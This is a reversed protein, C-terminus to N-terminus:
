CTAAGGPNTLSRDIRGTRLFTARRAPDSLGFQRGVWVLLALGVVELGLNLALGREVAPLDGVFDVGDLPWWFTSRDAWVFDFIVHWFVGIPLTLLRRRWRRQGVTVVMILCLAAIPFLLTHLIWVGGTLGDIVDPLLAGAVVLRHDIAPDRFTLWMAALSAGAFWLVM